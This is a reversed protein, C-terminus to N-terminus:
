RARETQFPLTQTISKRIFHFVSRIRRATLFRTTLYYLFSNVSSIRIAMSSFELNPIPNSRSERKLRWRKLLESNASIVAIPTKLEHGADSVFRKQRKDNEELPRVIRHSIFVSIVFLIAAEFMEKSIPMESFNQGDASLPMLESNKM